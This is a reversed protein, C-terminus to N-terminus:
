VWNKIYEGYSSNIEDGYILSQFTFKNHTKPIEDDNIHMWYKISLLTASIALPYRGGENKCALKSSYKNAGILFKCFNTWKSQIHIYIHSVANSM